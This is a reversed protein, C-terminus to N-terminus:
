LIPLSNPYRSYPLTLLNPTDRLPATPLSPCSGTCHELKPVSKDSKRKAVSQSAILRVASHPQLEVLPTAGDEKGERGECRGGGLVLTEVAECVATLTEVEEGERIARLCALPRAGRADPLNPQAGHRILLSIVGAHPRRQACALHLPPLRHLPQLPSTHLPQLPEVAPPHDLSVAAELLEAVLRLNPDDTGVAM